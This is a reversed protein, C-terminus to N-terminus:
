AGEGGRLAQLFSEVGSDEKEAMEALQQLVLLRDIMKIEVLGKETRKVESLLSLDLKDLEPEGELALRVCDNVRGFALEALRRIVDQQRINGARIRQQLEKDVSKRGM